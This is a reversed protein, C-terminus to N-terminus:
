LIELVSMIPYHDSYEEQFTKFYLSNFQKDYFIFDIRLPFWRLQYTKGFGNGSDVFADFFEARKLKRYLFSFATNNFDGALVAKYPSKELHKLLIELQQQQQVFAGSIRQSLLEYDQKTITEVEPSIKLSQFHINYVRITDTPLQVDVYIANNGSHPFDLSGSNFIKYKSFVAVGLRTKNGKIKEFHYPFSKLPEFGDPHFDQFCVIDPNQQVVFDGIKTPIEADEQWRYHNFLRVNYSMLSFSTASSAPQTASFKYLAEFNQYGMLLVLGSLMWRKNFFFLWFLFFLLNILILVPVSLSLVSILPFSRPPIYPILYSILLLLAALVNLVYILKQWFGSKM